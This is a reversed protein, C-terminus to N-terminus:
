FNVKLSLIFNTGPAVIGSSYPRYRQNTINEIGFDAMLYNSFQYMVKFNLTYWSPSYPNGEADAAYMYPKEQESPALDANSVEGSYQSYFDAMVRNWKWTFHTIGFWPASHRLPAKSGDELEEEGKQYNFQSSIGLGQPLNVDLGVQIGYIYANAANQIAQVNSWEGDYWISDNGDLLYDRRVLANNLYTYYVYADLKAVKGFVKGVGVEFNYAYEPQLEPNPVVVSGPESEFIKGVDDINPSRFGTTIGLSILWDNTPTYILGVSGNLANNIM